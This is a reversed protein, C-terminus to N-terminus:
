GFIRLRGVTWNRPEFDVYEYSYGVELTNGDVAGSHEQCDAAM